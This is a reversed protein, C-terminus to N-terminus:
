RLEEVFENNIDLSVYKFFASPFYNGRMVDRLPEIIYLKDKTAVLNIAHVISSRYESFVGANFVSILVNLKGGYDEDKNPVYTLLGIHIDERNTSSDNISNLAASFVKAYQTCVVDGYEMIENSDMMNIKLFEALSKITKSVPKKGDGSSIYEILNAKTNYNLTSSFMQAYMIKEEFTLDQGKVRGVKSELFSFLKCNFEEDTEEKKFNIKENVVNKIKEELNKGKTKKAVELLKHDPKIVVKQTHYTRWMTKYVLYNSFISLGLAGAIGYKCAKKILRKFSM